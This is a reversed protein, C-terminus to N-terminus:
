GQSGRFLLANSLFQTSFMIKQLLDYNRNQLKNLLYHKQDPPLMVECM